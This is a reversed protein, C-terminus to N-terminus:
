EYVPMFTPPFRFSTTGAFIPNTFTQQQYQNVNYSINHCNFFSVLYM